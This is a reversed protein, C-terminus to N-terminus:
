ERGRIVDLRRVLRREVNLLIGSLFYAWKLPCREDKRALRRCQNQSKREDALSLKQLFEEASRKEGPQLRARTAECCPVALFSVHWSLDYAPFLHRRLNTYKKEKVLNEKQRTSHLTHLCCSSLLQVDVNSWSSRLGSECM